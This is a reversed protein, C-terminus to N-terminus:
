IYRVWSYRETYGYMLTGRPVHAPFYKTLIRGALELEIPEWGRLAGTLPHRFAQRGVGTSGAMHIDKVAVKNLWGQCSAAHVCVCVLRTGDCVYLSGGESRWLGNMPGVPEVNTDEDWAAGNGWTEKGPPMRLSKECLEFLNM